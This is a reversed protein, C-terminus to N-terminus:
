DSRGAPPWGGSLGTIGEIELLKRKYSLGSGFGGLTRDAAVVRHCPVLIPVPNAGVARGVARAAGPRGVLRALGGYSITRGFGVRRRLSRLVERTFGHVDTWDVALDARKSRGSFYGDLARRVRKATTADAPAPDLDAMARAAEDAHLAIRRVGAYTTVVLLRGM